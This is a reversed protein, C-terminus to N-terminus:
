ATVEVETMRDLNAKIQDEISQAQQSEANFIEDM